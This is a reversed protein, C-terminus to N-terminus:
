TFLALSSFFGFVFDQLNNLGERRAVAINIQDRRFEFNLQHFIFFFNSNEICWRSRLYISRGNTTTKLKKRM